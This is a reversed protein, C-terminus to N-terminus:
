LVPLFHKIESVRNVVFTNVASSFPMEPRYKENTANVRQVPETPIAVPQPSSQWPEIGPLRFLNKEEGCREARCHGV